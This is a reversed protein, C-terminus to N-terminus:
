KESYDRIDDSYDHEPRELIYPVFRHNDISEYHIQMRKTPMGKKNLVKGYIAVVEFVEYDKGCQRGFMEARAEEKSEFTLMEQINTRQHNPCYRHDTGCVFQRTRTNIIAYM